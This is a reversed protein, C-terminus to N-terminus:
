ETITFPVPQGAPQDNIALQVSWNGPTFAIDTQDIFFWICSQDIPFDPVFEHTVVPTGELFWSSTLRTNPQIGAATAVVYIEQTSASFTSVSSLACDNDGVGQALVINYLSAQAATPTILADGAAGAVTPLPTGNANGPTVLPLPTAQAPVSIPAGPTVAAPDLGAAVMTRSLVGYQETVQRVVTGVYEATVDLADAAYTATNRVDAIETSLAVNQNVLTLEIQGDNSCAGLTLAITLLVCAYVLRVM